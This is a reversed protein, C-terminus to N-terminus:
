PLPKPGRSRSWDLALNYGPFVEFAEQSGKLLYGEDATRRYEFRKGTNPDIYDAADLQSSEIRDLSEPYRGDHRIADREVKLAIRALRWRAQSLDARDILNIDILDVFLGTTRRLEEVVYKEIQSEPDFKQEEQFNAEPVPPISPREFRNTTAYTLWADGLELINFRALPLFPAVRNEPFGMDLLKQEVSPLKRIAEAIEGMIATRADVPSPKTLMARLGRWVEKPLNDRAILDRLATMSVVDLARIVLQTDGSPEATLTRELALVRRVDNFAKAVDDTSASRVALLGSLNIFTFFTNQRELSLGTSGDSNSYNSRGDADLEDLLSLAPRCLELLYAMEPDSRITDLNGDLPFPFWYKESRNSKFTEIIKDMAAYIDLAQNENDPVAPPSINEPTPLMGWHEIFKAEMEALQDEIDWLLSEVDIESPTEKQGYAVSSFLLVLLVINTMRHM